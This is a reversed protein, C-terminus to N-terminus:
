ICGEFASPGIETVNAPISVSTLKTCGGLMQAPIKTINSSLSISVLDKCYAFASREITTVNNPIVISTIGSGYFSRANITTINSPIDVTKIGTCYMFTNKGTITIDNPLVLNTIKNGDLYIDGGQSTAFPHIGMTTKCWNSLNTLYLNKLNVCGDFHGHSDLTMVSNPMTISTLGTCDAFAFGDIISVNNPLTIHTLGTCGQFAAEGITTVSNPLTINKLGTCGLFAAEGITTVSTPIKFTELGSCEAFASNLTTIEAEIVVSKLGTCGGFAGPKLHEVTSPITVSKLSTCNAFANNGILNLGTPFEISELNTCGEFAYNHIQYVNSPINVNKLQKCERFAYLNITKVSNPLIVTELNSNWFMYSSIINDGTGSSTGAYPIYYYSDDYIMNAESLDLYTLTGNTRKGLYDLGAMNRLYIVDHSNLNGKVKLETLHMYDTYQLDVYLYGGEGGDATTMQHTSKKVNGTLNQIYYKGQEWKKTISLDFTYDTKTTSCFTVSLKKGTLNTPIIAVPISMSTNANFKLNKCPIRIDTGYNYDTRISPTQQTLDVRGSHYLNNPQETSLIIEYIECDSDLTVNLLLFSALHKLQVSIAGSTNENKAYMPAYKGLHGFLNNGDISQKAMSFEVNNKSSESSSNKRNFPYYTYYTQGSKLGWGGGSFTATNGGVNGEIAFYIQDGSKPFIGLTDGEAFSFKFNSNINTRTDLDGNEVDSIIAEITKYESQDIAINEEIENSCSCVLLTVAFAAVCNTIKKM